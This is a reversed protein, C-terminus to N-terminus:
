EFIEIFDKKNKLEVFYKAQVKLNYFNFNKLNKNKEIKM